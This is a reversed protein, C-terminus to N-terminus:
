EFYRQHVLPELEKKQQLKNDELIIPKWTQFAAYCGLFAQKAQTSFLTLNQMIAFMTSNFTPNALSIEQAVGLTAASILPSPISM